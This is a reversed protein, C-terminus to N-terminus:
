KKIQWIYFSKEAILHIKSMQMNDLIHYYYKYWNLLIQQIALKAYKSTLHTKSRWQGIPNKHYLVSRIENFLSKINNNSPELTLKNNTKILINFDAFDIIQGFIKENKYKIYNVDIDIKKAFLAICLNLQNLKLHKIFLIKNRDILIIDKYANKIKLNIYIHWEIGIYLITKLLEYLKNKDFCYYVSQKPSKRYNYDVLNQSNLWLRLKSSIFKLCNIKNILHQSNIAKVNVDINIYTKYLKKSGKVFDTFFYKIRIKFKNSYIQKKQLVYYTNVDRNGSQNYYHLYKINIM